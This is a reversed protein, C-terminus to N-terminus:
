FVESNMTNKECISLQEESLRVWFTVLILDVDSILAHNKTPDFVIPWSPFVDHTLNCFKVKKSPTHFIFKCDPQTDYEDPVVLSLSSVFLPYLVGINAGLEKAYFEDEHLGVNGRFRHSMVERIQEPEIKDSILNACESRSFGAEEILELGNFGTNDNLYHHNICLHLIREVQDDHKTLPKFM